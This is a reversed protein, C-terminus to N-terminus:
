VGVAHSVAESRPFQCGVASIAALESRLHHRKPDVRLSEHLADSFLVDLFSIRFDAVEEGLPVSRLVIPM